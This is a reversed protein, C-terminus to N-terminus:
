GELHERLAGMLERAGKLALRNVVFQPVFAAPEGKWRHHLRAGGEVAEVRWESVFSRMDGDVLDQRVTREATTCSRTRFTPSALPHVIRMTVNHCDGDAVSETARATDFRGVAGPDRVLEWVADAEAAIDVHGVLWGDDDIRLTPEAALSAAFLWAMM